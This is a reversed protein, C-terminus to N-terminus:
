QPISFLGLSPPHFSFYFFTSLFLFSLILLFPFFRRIRQCLFLRFSLFFTLFVALLFTVIDLWFLHYGLIGTYTYFLVPIFLTGCLLGALCAPFLTPYKKRFLIFLLLSYFLAPFFILKMHEWTSESVPSIFGAAPHFHAWEYFFHSLSGVIICFVAGFLM